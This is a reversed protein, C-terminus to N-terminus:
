PRPWRQLAVKALELTRADIDRSTWKARKISAHLGITASADILVKKDTFPKRANKSNDYKSVATLNGLVHIRADMKDRSANAGWVALDALWKKGPDGGQPYIHEISFDSVGTGFVLPHAGHGSLQREIGRLLTQTERPTRRTLEVTKVAALVEADTPWDAAQLASRVSAVSIPAKLKDLLNMFTARLPSFSKGSLLSRILYSQVDQVVEALEAKALTGEFTAIVCRLLLPVPPGGSLQMVEGLRALLDKDISFSKGFVDVKDQLGLAVPYLKAAQAMPVAYDDHFRQEQASTLGLSRIVREIFSRHLTKQSVRGEGLSIMYEYFFQEEPANRLSSYSIAALTREVEEWYSSHFSDRMTPLRVHISNRLHDFQRLPTNKSNMTEFIVSSEEDAAVDLRIELVRLGNTLVNLLVQLDIPITGQVPAWDTYSGKSPASRKTSHRPPLLPDYADVAPEGQWLQYRFFKYSQGLRTAYVADPIAKVCKGAMILEFEAQNQLQVLARKLPAGAFQPTIWALENKLKVTKGQLDAAHDRIAANVVFLTLLRQQGDVVGVEEAVGGPLMGREELILPGMFHPATSQGSLASLQVLRYQRSIDRWLDTWRDQNWSYSRQYAPVVLRVNAQFYNGISVAAPKM